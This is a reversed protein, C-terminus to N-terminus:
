YQSVLIQLFMDSCCSLLTYKQVIQTDLWINYTGLSGWLSGLLRLNLSCQIHYKDSVAIPISGLRFRNRGLENSVLQVLIYSRLSEFRLLLSFLITCSQHTVILISWIYIRFMVDAHLLNKGCQEDGGEGCDRSGDCIRIMDICDGNLCRFQGPLCVTSMKSLYRIYPPIRKNNNNIIQFPM